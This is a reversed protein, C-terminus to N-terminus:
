PGCASSRRRRASGHRAISGRRASRSSGSARCSARPFAPRPARRARRARRGRSLSATTVPVLRGDKGAPGAPGAAGTAGMPGAPGAPGTAGDAGDAGTWETRATRAPLVPCGPSSRGSSSSPGGTDRTASPDTALWGAEYRGPAVGSVALGGTSNANGVVTFPDTSLPDTRPRYSFVVPPGSGSWPFAIGDTDAYATWTAGWTAGGDLPITATVNPPAVATGGGGLDDQLVVMDLGLLGRYYGELPWTCESTEAPTGGPGFLLDGGEWGAPGPGLWRGPPCEGGEVWTSRGEPPKGQLDLRLVGASTGALVRHPAAAMRLTVLDGTQVANALANRSSGGDATFPITELTSVGRTHLLQM